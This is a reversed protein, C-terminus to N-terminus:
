YLPFTRGLPLPGLFIQGRDFRLKLTATKNGNEGRIPPMGFNKLLHDLGTMSVDLAGQPRNRDDLGMEGQIALRSADKSISLENIIFKGGAARWRELEAPIGQGGFPDGHTILANLNVAAQGAGGTLPDLAPVSFGVLTTIVDYAHDSAPRDVARRIHFEAAATKADRKTGMTDTWNLALQKGDVSLRDLREGPRGRLSARLSEWTLTYNAKGDGLTLPGDVEIIMLTPQYIQAAATIGSLTGKLGTDTRTFSPNKCRIDIRFPFGGLTREPCTWVRGIAAERAIWADIQRDATRISWFWFVALAGLLAALVGVPVFLKWRSVRGAPMPSDHNPDSTIDENAM